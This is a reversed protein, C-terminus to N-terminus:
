GKFPLIGAWGKKKGKLQEAERKKAQEDKDAEACRKLYQYTFEKERAKLEEDNLLGKGGDIRTDPDKSGTYGPMGDGVGVVQSLAECKEVLWANHAMGDRWHPPLSEYGLWCGLIGGAICANTDADGGELILDRIIKEFIASNPSRGRGGLKTKHSTDRMGMRLALIASGLAKYVYGMTQADDLQLDGFNTVRLHRDFEDRNLSASDQTPDDGDVHSIAGERGNQMWTETWSYANEIMSDIDNECLVEGRLIGRILGTAICCAVVCRLDAHTIISFEAAIKFTEELTSAMCIIGLPHTRMLSGNPAITRNSKVWSRYATEAPNVLYEKSLVVSGLTRGIGLPMRDLCRLGQEIWVRLREALDKSSLEKGDHHLYSLLILLAHDTDDTWAAIEFKDIKAIFCLAFSTILRREELHSETYVRKQM